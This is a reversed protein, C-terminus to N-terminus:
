DKDLARARCALMHACVGWAWLDDAVRLRLVVDGAVILLLERAMGQLAAM